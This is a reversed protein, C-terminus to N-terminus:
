YVQSGPCGVSPQGAMSYRTKNREWDSALGAVKNFNFIGDLMKDIDPGFKGYTGSIFLTAGASKLLTSEGVISLFLGVAIEGYEVYTAYPNISKIKKILRMVAFIATTVLLILGADMVDNSKVSKLSKFKFNKKMSLGKISKSNCCM